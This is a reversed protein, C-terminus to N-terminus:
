VHELIWKSILEKSDIKEIKAKNEISMIQEHSLSLLNYLKRTELKSILEPSLEMEVDDMEDWYDATSHTDWFDQIQELDEFKEPLKDKSRNM